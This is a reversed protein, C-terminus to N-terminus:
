QWRLPRPCGHPPTILRLEKPVLGSRDGRV